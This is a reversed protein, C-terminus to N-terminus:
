DGGVPAWRWVGEPQLIPKLMHIPRPCLVNLKYCLVERLIRCKLQSSVRKPGTCCSSSRIQHLCCCRVPGLAHVRAAKELFQFTLLLITQLSTPFAGSRAPSQASSYLTQKDNSRTRNGAGGWNPQYGASLMSAM